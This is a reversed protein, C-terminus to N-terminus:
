FRSATAVWSPLRGAIKWPMSPSIIWMSRSPPNRDQRVILKRGTMRPIQVTTAM